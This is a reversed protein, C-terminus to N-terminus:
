PLSNRPPPRLRKFPLRRSSQGQALAQSSSSIQTAAGAVQTATEDVELVTRQLTGTARGIVVWIAAGLLLSVAILIFVVWYSTAAVEAATERDRALIERNLEKAEGLGKRLPSLSSHDKGLRDEAVSRLNGGSSVQAMEEAASRWTALGAELEDVLQKGETTAVLPRLGAIAQAMSEAGTQFQRRSREFGEPVKAYSFMTLGRVGSLMESRASDMEGICELKKQNVNGAKDLSASLKSTVTLTAVAQLAMMAFLAGFGFAFKKGLTM